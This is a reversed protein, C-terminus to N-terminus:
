RPLLRLCGAGKGWAAARGVPELGAAAVEGLVVAAEVGEEGVGGVGGGERDPTDAAGDLAFGVEVRRLEEGVEEAM